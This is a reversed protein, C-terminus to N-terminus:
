KILNAPVDLGKEKYFKVAGPHLPVQLGKVADKLTTYKKVAPHTNTWEGTNAWLGKLMAYVADVSLGAKTSTYMVVRSTPTAVAKDVNRYTGAPVELKTFFPYKKYFGDDAVPVMKVKYSTTLDLLAASKLPHTIIFADLTGDKLAAVMEANSMFEPKIDKYTLGYYTLIKQAAREGGSGPAGVGIRKGKFDKVSTIKSDASTFIQAWSLLTGFLSRLSSVARGKYKGEGNYALFAVENQSIAWDVNGQSLNRINELSASSAEASAKYGPVHRNITEAMAVGMPYLAGATGATGISIRKDAAAAPLALALGLALTMGIILVKRM